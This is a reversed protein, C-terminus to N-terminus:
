FIYFFIRFNGFNSFNQVKFIRWFYLNWSKKMKEKAIDDYYHGKGNAFFLILIYWFNLFERFFDRFERFFDRFRSNRSFQGVPNKKVWLNPNLPWFQNLIWRWVQQFLEHSKNQRGTYLWSNLLYIFNVVKCVCMLYFDPMWKTVSPTIKM